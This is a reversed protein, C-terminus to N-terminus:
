RVGVEAQMSLWEVSYIASKKALMEIVIPFIAIARTSTEIAIVIVNVNMERGPATMEGSFRAIALGQTAIERRRSAIALTSSEIEQGRATM